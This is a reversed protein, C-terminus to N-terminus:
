IPLEGQNSSLAELVRLDADVFNFQNLEPVTVWRVQEHEELKLSGGVITCWFAMLEIDFDPYSYHATYFHEEVQIDLNLEEKIERRLCAEPTEGEMLKGGPFEWRRGFRKDRGRQAILIKKDDKILAATVLGM